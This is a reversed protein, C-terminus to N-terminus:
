IRSSVNMVVAGAGYDPHEPDNLGNSILNLFSPTDGEM